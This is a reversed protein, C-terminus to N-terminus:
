ELIASLVSVLLCISVTGYPYVIAHNQLNKGSFFQQKNRSLMYNAANREQRYLKWSLPTNLKFALRHLKNRENCKLRFESNHWRNCKGKVLRLKLPAHKELLDMVSDNLFQFKKDISRTLYLNSQELYSENEIQGTLLTLQSSFKIWDIKKWSRVKIVKPKVRLKSKKRILFCLKHDSGAFPFSGFTSYKDKTNVYLHDLLGGKNHTPTKLLQSLGYEKCVQYFSFKARDIFNFDTELLNINFDGFIVIELKQSSIMLNLSEFCKTFEEIKSSPHKYITVVIIPKVHNKKIKIINMECNDPVTLDRDLVKFQFDNHIYIITGGGANALRDCRVFSYNTVVYMSDVDRDPDLKSETYSFVAPNVTHM